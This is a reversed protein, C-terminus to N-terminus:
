AHDLAKDGSGPERRGGYDGNRVGHASAAVLLCGVVLMSKVFQM